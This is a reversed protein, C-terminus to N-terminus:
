LPLYSRQNNKFFVVLIVHDLIEAVKVVDFALFFLLESDCDLIFERLDLM